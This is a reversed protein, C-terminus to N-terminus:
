GDAGAKNLPLIEGVGAGGEPDVALEDMEFVEDQVVGVAINAGGGV